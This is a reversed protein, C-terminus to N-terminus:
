LIVYSVATIVVFFVVNWLTFMRFYRSKEHPLERCFLKYSILSALSAILTGCGGANVGLLLGRANDTFGSLLVAAPVNSIVQSLLAGVILERGETLRDLVSAVGPIASMNGVFIFFCVFTVLLAIDIQAFLKRDLVVVALVVILASVTYPVIDFVGLLCLIFLLLYVACRKRSSIHIEEISVTGFPINPVFLTSAGILVASILVFPVTVGFFDSTNMSYYSYIYLNQPNGVPTLASGLNAAVTELVVTIAAYKTGGSLSLILLTFPVFTLLAVDNTIFMSLVFCMAVLLVAVTRFTKVKKLFKNAAYRFVDLKSLGQVTLMLCLLSLLVKFDIYEIYNVSPPVFFCSIIAVLAAVTLVVEKKLFSIIKNMTQMM